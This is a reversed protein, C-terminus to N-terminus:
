TGREHAIRVLRQGFHPGHVADEERVKARLDAPVRWAGRTPEHHIHNGRYGSLISVKNFAFRGYVGPPGVFRTM